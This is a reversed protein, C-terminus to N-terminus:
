RQCLFIHNLSPIILISISSSRNISLSESHWFAKRNGQSNKHFSRSTWLPLTWCKRPFFWFIYSYLSVIFQWWSSKNPFIKSSFSTKSVKGLFMTDFVQYEHRRPTKENFSYTHSVRDRWWQPFETQAYLFVPIWM